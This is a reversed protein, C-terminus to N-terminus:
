VLRPLDSTYYYAKWSVETPTAAYELVREVSVVNTELDSSMRVMYNLAGTIQCCLFCLIAYPLFSWLYSQLPIKKPFLDYDYDNVNTSRM